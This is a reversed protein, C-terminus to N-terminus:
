FKDSCYVPIFPSPSTSKLEVSSNERFLLDAKGLTKMVVSVLKLDTGNINQYSSVPSYSKEQGGSKPLGDHGARRTKELPESRSSLTLLYTFDGIRTLERSLM